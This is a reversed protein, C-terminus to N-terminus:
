FDSDWDVTMQRESLNVDVVVQDPLYPILRQRSDLSCEAPEVVLVDNSGTEILHDVVGLWEGALTVVRLGELDSWYYDGAPLRPRQSPQIGLELGSYTRATEPDDCGPLKALLGKGQRKVDIRDIRVWQDGQQLWLPKYRGLNEMPQTYSHVKLWGKIGHPGLFRGVVLFPDAASM